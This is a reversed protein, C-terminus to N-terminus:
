NSQVQMDLSFQFLLESVNFWYIPAEWGLAKQILLWSHETCKGQQGWCWFWCWRGTLNLMDPQSSKFFNDSFTEQYSVYDLICELRVEGGAVCLSHDIFGRQLASPSFPECQWRSLSHGVCGWTGSPRKEM